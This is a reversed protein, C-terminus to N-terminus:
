VLGLEKFLKKYTDFYESKAFEEIKEEPLSELLQDMYSLVTKLETKLEAPIDLTEEAAADRGANEAGLDRLPDSEAIPIDASSEEALASEGLDLASELDDDFPVRSEAAAEAEFGEPIIGAISDKGTRLSIELSDEKAPFITKEDADDEASAEFREDEELDVSIDDIGSLSIEDLSPEEVPNETIKTSLDPEDIVAESLDLSVTDFDEDEEEDLSIDFTGSDAPSDAELYAGGEPAATMPEVGDSRLRLLVDSDATEDILAIEGTEMAAGDETLNEETFLNEELPGLDQSLGGLDDEAFDGDRSVASVEEEAGSASSGGAEKEGATDFDSPDIDLDIGLDEFDIDIMEGEDSGDSASVEAPATDGATEDVLSDASLVETTEALAIKDGPKEAAGVEDTLEATYLINDLEDGTLAIKEDDEEMFFGDHQHAESKEEAPTESRIGAFEKKLASLETRISSLEEAIRMLLRTSLEPTPAEAAPDPESESFSYEPLSTGTEIAPEACEPGSELAAFDDFSVDFGDEVATIEEDGKDAQEDNKGFAAEAESLDIEQIQMDTIGFDDVDSKTDAFGTDLDPLPLDSFDESGAASLYDQPESKVWVGYEDLEDASGIAGRDSCISPKKESAM